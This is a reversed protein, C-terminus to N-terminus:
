KGPQYIECVIEDPDDWIYTDKGRYRRTIWLSVLNGGISFIMILSVLFSFPDKLFVSLVGVPVLILFIPAILALRYIGIPIAEECYAYPTLMRVGMTISKRGNKCAILFFFAHILERLIVLSFLVFIFLIFYLPLFVAKDSFSAPIDIRSVRPSCFSYTLIYLVALPVPFFLGFINALFASLSHKWIRYHQKMLSARNM